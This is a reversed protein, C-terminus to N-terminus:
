VRRGDVVVEIERCNSAERRKEAGSNHREREGKKEERSDTGKLEVGGPDVGLKLDDRLRFFSVKCGRM